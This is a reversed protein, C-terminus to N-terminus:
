GGLALSLVAAIPVMAINNEYGVAVGLLGYVFTMLVVILYRRELGMNKVLTGVANEVASSKDMIGFMIGAAIVIFIIEVATKFGLPIAIFMDLLGVPTQEVTHYSGAVVRNRGDVEVREYTGAPLIYTLITVFIIIGFLLTVAHPIREYWAKSPNKTPKEIQSM